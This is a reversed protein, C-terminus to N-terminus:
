SIHINAKEKDYETINFSRNFIQQVNPFEDKLFKFINVSYDDVNTDSYIYFKRQLLKVLEEETLTNIYDFMDKVQDYVWGLYPDRTFYSSLTRCEVGYSKSRFNGPYGFNSLRFPEYKIKFAPLTLFLDFMKSIIVDYAEKTFIPDEVSYGIHIHFGATRIRSHKLSPSRKGVCECDRCFQDYLGEWAYYVDSCGFEQGRKSEALEKPFELEGSSYLVGEYITSLIMEQLLSKLIKVNDIFGERSTTPPINGELTLNDVMASYGNGLDEPDGKTGNTFAISSMPEGLDKTIVFFEPDAGINTFNIKHM